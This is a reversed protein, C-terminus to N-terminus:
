CQVHTTVWDVLRRCYDIRHSPRGSLIFEHSAGPYRVLETEVRRGRLAAFWEEAQGVPCRDDNEGHLILTPATVGAVHTIPSCALLREAGDWPTAGLEHADLMPGIDAAAMSMLNTVCGGSVAAVFRDTCATLWNSMYGGYSYGTVAVRRPDIGDDAILADVAAVFDSADARGWGDTLLATFFQEGYGDSGRPNLTLITWGAAALEHHYLHVGDLAPSWANHPGGHIDVLLADNPHEGRTVWGHLATGDPATFSRPRPALLDVGALAEAAFDTLRREADGGVTSMGIEGCTHPDSEVYALRGAALSLGSIVRDDGALLATPTGGLLPVQFAHTCGRDRACFIVTTGDPTVIPPAGPYAPAGVMVNRDFDPAIPDPKGGRAAVAFLQAHGVRVDPRGAFVITEGDPTFTPATAEGGHDTVIQPECGGHADVVMVHSVLNLDADEQPAATFAIRSGDPSWALPGGASWDGSTIRQQADTEVDVVTIHQQRGKLLGAGDSKANLRRVVVPANDDFGDPEVIALYALRRGDPSWSPRGAGAPENTVVRAEGGASPLVFIQAADDGRAAVFALWQGDPSWRPSSDHPGATLQRRTDGAASVVWVVSRHEDAEQDARTVVFAVRSGDPSLQPESLWSLGFLDDLVLPRGQM